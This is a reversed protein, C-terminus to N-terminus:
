ANFSGTQHEFLTVYRDLKLAFDYKLKKRKSVNDANLLEM